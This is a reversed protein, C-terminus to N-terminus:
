RLTVLSLQLSTQEGGRRYSCYEINCITCINNYLNFNDIPIDCKQLCLMNYKSVDFFYRQDRTEVCALADQNHVLNAMFKQDVEYCCTRAAPGFFVQINQSKVGFNEVLKTVVIPAIGAVTGRWGAHAIAVVEAIPDFFVIPLCDATLVGLQLNAEKTILYDGKPVAIQWSSASEVSVIHGDVGHMQELVFIDGFQKKYEKLSSRYALKTTPSNSQNGWLISLKKM